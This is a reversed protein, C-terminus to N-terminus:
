PIATRVAEPNTLIQQFQEVAANRNRTLAEANVGYRVQMAQDSLTLLTDADMRLQNTQAIVEDPSIQGSEWNLFVQQAAQHLGRLKEWTDAAEPLPLAGALENTTLKMLTDLVSFGSKLRTEDVKGDRAAEALHVLGAINSQAITYTKYTADMQGALETPIPTPSLSPTATAPPITPPAPTATAPQTPTHIPVFPTGSAATQPSELNVPAALTPQGSACGSLVLSIGLGWVVLRWIFSHNM